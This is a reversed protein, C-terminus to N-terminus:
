EDAYAVPCGHEYEPVCDSCFVESCHPCTSTAPVEECNACEPEQVDQREIESPNM